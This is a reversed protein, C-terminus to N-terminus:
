KEVSRFFPFGVPYGISDLFDSLVQNNDFWPLQKFETTDMDATACRFTSDQAKLVLFFIQLLFLLYIKRM